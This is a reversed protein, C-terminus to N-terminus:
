SSACTLNLRRLFKYGEDTFLPTHDPVVRDLVPKITGMKQDPISEMCLPGNKWSIVHTLTGIQRGGLKDSMYISATQGGHRYRKRGKNARQSASYLVVTDAHVVPKKETYKRLDRDEKPFNFDKFERRLEEHMLYRVGEMQTSAFLQIRRKLNLSANYSIRLRKQIERATLVNPYHLFSEHLM